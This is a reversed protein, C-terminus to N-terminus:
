LKPWNEKMQGLLNLGTMRSVIPVIQEVAPSSSSCSVWIARHIRMIAHSIHTPLMPM